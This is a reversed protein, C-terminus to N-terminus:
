VQGSNTKPHRHPLTSDVQQREDDCAEKNQPPVDDREESQDVPSLTDGARENVKEIAVRQEEQEDNVKEVDVREEQENSSKDAAVREKEERDLKKNLTDREYM